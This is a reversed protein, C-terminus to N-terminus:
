KKKDKYDIFPLGAGVGALIDSENRRFPDFAANVDRINAPNNVIYETGAYSKKEKADKLIAKIIRSKEDLYDGNMAFDEAHSKDKAFYVGPENGPANIPQSLEFENFQRRTGHYAPNEVDFGLAAAREMATNEPHLGLGGQEIPLSANQQATIHALEFPTKGVGKITGLMMAADLAENPNAPTKENLKAMLPATDGRLAKVIADRNKYLPSNAKLTEVPNMLVKALAQANGKTTDVIDDYWAM